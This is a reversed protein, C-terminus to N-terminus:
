ELRSHHVRLDHQGDLDHETLTAGHPRPHYSGHHSDDAAHKKVRRRANRLGVLTGPVHRRHLDERRPSCAGCFDRDKYLHPVAARARGYGNHSGPSVAGPFGPELHRADLTHKRQTGTGSCPPGIEECKSLHPHNSADSADARSKHGVPTMGFVATVPALYAKRLEDTEAKRCTGGFAPDNAQPGSDM